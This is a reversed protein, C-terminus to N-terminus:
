TAHPIGLYALVDAATDSWAVARFGAIRQEQRHLEAPDTMLRGIQAVWADLDNPDLHIGLGQSAEPVATTSSAVCVKGAALSESVPLGYGEVLSPFVTFLCNAYLWGLMRDDANSLIRIKQAIAPDAAIDRAFAAGDTGVRGAIVLPKVDAGPRAMLARWANHLLAHNKRPVVDGVALV